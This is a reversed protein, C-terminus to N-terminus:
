YRPPKSREHRAVLVAVTCSALRSLLGDARSTLIVPVRAGAVIDASQANTLCTLQKAITNGAEISPVILVNAVGAVIQKMAAATVCIAIDFALPGVVLGGIIRVCWCGTM